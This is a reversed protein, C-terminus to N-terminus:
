MMEAKMENENNEHENILRQMHIIASNRLRETNAFHVIYKEHDRTVMEHEKINLPFMHKLKTHKTCKQAFELCLQERRNFLTDLELVNLANTYTKYKEKLIIRLASKQVRELDDINEETLSSHWVCSSVELISRVFLIFIDKMDNQLAGFESIKHMLQLRANAKKIIKNTNLDWKLDNTIFTGLLKTSEVVQINENNVTLRTTFQHNNTFNFLMTKTKDENLLM